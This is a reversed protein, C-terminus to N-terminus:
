RDKATVRFVKPEAPALSALLAGSELAVPVWQGDPAIQEV